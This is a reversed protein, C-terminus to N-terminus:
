YKEGDDRSKFFDAMNSISPPELEKRALIDEFHSRISDDWAPHTLIYFINNRIAEFVIDAIENPEKGKKLLLNFVKLTQEDINSQNVAESSAILAMATFRDMRNLERKEFHDELHIKVEGALHVSYEDTNFCTIPAIGNVGNKLGNNFEQTSNGIPSLIGTGTVVVRRSM